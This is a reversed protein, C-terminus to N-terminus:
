EIDSDSIVKKRKSYRDIILPFLATIWLCILIYRFTDVALGTGIVLKLGEKIALVGAIGFIYFLVRPPLKWHTISFRINMKEVYMGAAFGIGAGAAKLCDSVYGEDIKGLSYLVFAYVCTGAAVALLAASTIIVRKKSEDQKKDLVYVVAYCIAMSVVFSVGVDLLTHVGLYMRSFGVLVALTFCGTKQWAKKLAFGLTGFVAAASQTHGSPFSYGTANEIASGVPSFLPDIVWPRDIRFGIKMGQVLLGTIFYTIGIAYATRKDICWFIACLLIIAVTEEGLRTILSFVVDFFPVRIGELFWLFEM